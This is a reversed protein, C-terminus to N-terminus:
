DRLQSFGKGSEQVHGIPLSRSGDAVIVLCPTAAWGLVTPQFRQFDGTAPPTRCAECHPPTTGPTEVKMRKFNSARMIM